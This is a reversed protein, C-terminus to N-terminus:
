QCYIQLSLIDGAGGGTEVRRLDGICRWSSRFFSSSSFIIEEINRACHWQFAYRFLNISSHYFSPPIFIYPLISVPPIFSYICPPVCPTYIMYPIHIPLLFSPHMCISPHIYTSPSISLYIIYFFNYALTSLAPLFALTTKM